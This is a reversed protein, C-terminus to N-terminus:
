HGHIDLLDKMSLHKKGTKGVEEALNVVERGDNNADAFSQMERGSAGFVTGGDADKAKSTMKEELM